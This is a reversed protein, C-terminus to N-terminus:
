TLSKDTGNQNKAQSIEIYFEPSIGWM